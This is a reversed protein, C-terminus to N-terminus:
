PTENEPRHDPYRIKKGYAKGSAKSDTFVEVRCGSKELMPKLRNCVIPEDDVVCIEMIRDMM